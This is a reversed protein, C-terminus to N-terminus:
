KKGTAAGAAREKHVADLVEPHVAIKYGKEIKAAWRNFVEERAKIFIKARIEADAQRLTVNKAPRKENLYIVHCGFRTEVVPSIDGARKLAFSAEAFKPVAPGKIGTVFDQLSLELPPKPETLEKELDKFQQLTMPSRTALRHIEDCLKTARQQDQKSIRSKRGIVVLQWVHVQEPHVFYPLQRKYTLEVLDDPISEKTFRDGFDKRILQNAMARRQRATVDARRHMGRRAAEQALLEMEILRKLAEDRTGGGSMQRRLEGTTIPHDNVRVVVDAPNEVLPKLAVGQHDGTQESGCAALLCLPLIAFSLSKM